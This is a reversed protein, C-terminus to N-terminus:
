SIPQDIPARSRHGNSLRSNFYCCRYRLDHATVGLQGEIIHRLQQQHQQHCQHHIVMSVRSFVPCGNRRIFVPVTVSRNMLCIGRRSATAETVMVVTVVRSIRMVGSSYSTPTQSQSATLRRRGRFRIPYDATIWLRIRPICMPRITTGHSGAGTQRM